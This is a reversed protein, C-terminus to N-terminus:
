LPIKPHFASRQQDHVLTDRNFIICSNIITGQTKNQSLNKKNYHHSQIYFKEVYNVSPGKKMNSYPCPTTWVVM